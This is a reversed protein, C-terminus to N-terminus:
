EVVTRNPYHHNSRCEPQRPAQRFPLRDHVAPTANQFVRVLGAHVKELRRGMVVTGHHQHGAVFRQGIADTEGGIAEDILTLAPLHHQMVGTGARM